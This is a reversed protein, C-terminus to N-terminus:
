TFATLVHPYNFQNTSVATVKTARTSLKLAPSLSKAKDMDSDIEAVEAAAAAKESELESM